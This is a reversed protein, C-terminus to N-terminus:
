IQACGSSFFIQKPAMDLGACISQPFFFAIILKTVRVCFIMILVYDTHTHVHKHALSICYHFHARTGALNLMLSPSLDTRATPDFVRDALYHLM